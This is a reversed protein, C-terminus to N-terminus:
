AFFGRDQDMERYNETLDTRGYTMGAYVQQTNHMLPGSHDQKAAEVFGAYLQTLVKKADAIGDPKREYLARSLANRSFVYIQYLNGSIPYAFDLDEILRTLVQQAKHISFKFLDYDEAMLAAEADSAYAFYIDYIIVIMQGSNCTSLRRTFDQIKEREM